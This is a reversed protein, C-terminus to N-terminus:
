PGWSPLPQAQIQGGPQKVGFSSCEESPCVHGSLSPIFITNYFLLFVDAM